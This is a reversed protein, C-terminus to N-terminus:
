GGHHPPVQAKLWREGASEGDDAKEGPDREDRTVEPLADGFVEARRKRKEWDSSGNTTSRTTTSGNTTSGTSVEDKSM